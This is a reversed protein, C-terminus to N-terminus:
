PRLRRRRPIPLASSCHGRVWDRSGQMASRIRATRCRPARSMALTPRGGKRFRDCEWVPRACASLPNAEVTALKTHVDMDARNRSAWTKRSKWVSAGFHLLQGLRFCASIELRRNVEAAPRPVPTLRPWGFFLVLAGFVAKGFRIPSASATHNQFCQVVINQPIPKVLVM